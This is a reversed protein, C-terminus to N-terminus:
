EARTSAITHSSEGRFASEFDRLVAEADERMRDLRQRQGLIISALAASAAAADHNIIVYHYQDYSGLEKLSVALRKAVAGPEDLRRGQLRHRLAAFGPPMVFIGTAEQYRELVQEAGQVDIDLIVDTGRELRSMVAERSTGYFNGHVEAWELFRDGAVMEQFEAHGVFHYDRGDVEGSRPSRTTFSVSFVVGAGALPGEMLRQILTTKGTGSPASLIFLEGRPMSPSELVPPEAAM